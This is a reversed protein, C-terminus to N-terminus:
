RLNITICCKPSCPVVEADAGESVVGGSRPVGHWQLLRWMGSQVERLNIGRDTSECDQDQGDLARRTGRLGIMMPSRDPPM